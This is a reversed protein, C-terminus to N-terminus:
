RDRLPIPRVVPPTYPATTVFPRVAGTEPDVTVAGGLSTDYATIATGDPTWRPSRFAQGAQAHTIARLGSGDPNIGYLERTDDGPDPTRKEDLLNTSFVIEGTVWGWDPPSAFKEWETLYRPEGGTMPVIAIAAGTEYADDDLRDVQFVIRSGDPSWRPVDALYPRELRVVPSVAGTALEVVYVGVAAPGIIGVGSEARSFAIRTGDPSWAPFDCGPTECASVSEIPSGDLNAIYMRESAEDIFVIRQGDPSWDVRKHIGPLVDTALQLMGTGDLRSVYLGGGAVTVRTFAVLPEDSAFAPLGVASPEPTAAAATATASPGASVAPTTPSVPAASSSGCAVVLLAFALSVITRSM